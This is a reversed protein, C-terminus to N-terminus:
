TIGRRRRHRHRLVVTGMAYRSFSPSRSTVYGGRHRGSVWRHVPSARRRPARLGPSGAGRVRASSRCRCLGRGWAAGQSRGGPPPLSGAPAASIPDAGPRAPHWACPPTLLAGARPARGHPARGPGHTLLQARPPRTGAPPARGPPPPEGPPVPGRLQQQLCSPHPPREPSRGPRTGEGPGEGTGEARGGRPAGPEDQGRLAPTLGRTGCVPRQPEWRRLSRQPPLAAPSGEGKRLTLASGPRTWRQQARGRGRGGAGPGPSRTHERGARGRGRTGRPRQPQHGSRTDHSAM